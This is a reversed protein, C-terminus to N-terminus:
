DLVVAELHPVDGACFPFLGAGFRLGPVVVGDLVRFRIVSKGPLGVVVQANWIAACLVRDGPRDYAPQAITILHPERIPTARVRVPQSACPGAVAPLPLAR